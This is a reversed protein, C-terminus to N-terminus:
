VQYSLAKLTVSTLRANGDKCPPDSKCKSVTGLLSKMEIRDFSM